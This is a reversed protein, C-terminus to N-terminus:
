SLATAAALPKTAKTPPFAARVFARRICAAHAPGWRGRLLVARALRSPNSQRGAGIANFDLPRDPDPYPVATM